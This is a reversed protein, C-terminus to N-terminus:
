EIGLERLLESVVGSSSGNDTESDELEAPQREVFSEYGTGQEAYMVAYRLADMGHDHLKEPEEKDPKGDALKAWQYVDFEDRTCTPKFRTRLEQDREIVVNELVFLRPKEDPQVRLRAAVKDRGVKRQKSAAVTPVGYRELTARDEADHDAVTTEIREGVSLRVIERAHDEVLKRTQYIERYLYMRGDPDIAWWQCVFPNTYGFDISRFRRWDAPIEFQPLQNVAPDFEYVVGEAAVWLGYRLRSKRVGTLSDLISLSRKGQATINGENDFLTPNDEHRSELLRLQGMRERDKIWHSPPGPNCDGFVMPHDTVSGRGTARTLITEWDGTSLEEAQNVYIYDREGSLIKGPRDMGGIYMRSGNPYDFWEPKEGGYPKAGSESIEIIRRYTRLATPGIDAAVKRIFSAQAGPVRSLESDLRWITAFSKGTEAPGSLIWEHDHIAQVTAASGRFRLSKRQRQKQQEQKQQEALKAQREMEARRRLELEVEIKFQPSFPNLLKAM